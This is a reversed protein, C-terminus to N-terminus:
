KKRKPSESERLDSQALALAAGRVYASLTVGKLAAARAITERDHGLYIAIHPFPM